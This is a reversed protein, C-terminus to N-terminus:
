VFTSRGRLEKNTSGFIVGLFSIAIFAKLSHSVSYGFSSFRSAELISPASPNICSIRNMASSTVVGGSRRLVRIDCVFFKRGPKHLHPFAAIVPAVISGKRMCRFIGLCPQVFKPATGACCTRQSRRPATRPAAWSGRVLVLLMFQNFSILIEPVQTSCTSAPTTELNCSSPTRCIPKENMYSSLQNRSPIRNCAHM